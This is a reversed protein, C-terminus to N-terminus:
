MSMGKNQGKDKQSKHEPGNEEAATDRGNEAKKSRCPRGGWLSDFPGEPQRGPPRSAHRVQGPRCGAERTGPVCISYGKERQLHVRLHGDGEAAPKRLEPLVPKEPPVGNQRLMGCIGDPCPASGGTMPLWSYIGTPPSCCGRRSCAPVISM